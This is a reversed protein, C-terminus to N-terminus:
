PGEEASRETSWKENLQEYHKDHTISYLTKQPKASTM